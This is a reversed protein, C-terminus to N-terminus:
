RPPLHRRLIVAGPRDVMDAQALRAWAEELTFLGRSLCDAVIEELHAADVEPAIDIVTRIPTTVPIGRHVTVDSAPLDAHHVVVDLDGVRRLETPDGNGDVGLPVADRDDEDPGDEDFRCGCTMMQGNCLPCRQQDCGLHHLGGREVGCDGCRPARTWHERISAFRIMPVPRGGRHMVAISCSAATTMEQHCWHCVAM